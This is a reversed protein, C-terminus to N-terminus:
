AILNHQSDLVQKAASIVAELQSHSLGNAAKLIVTALQEPALKQIAIALETIVAEPIGQTLAAWNTVVAPALPQAYAPADSNREISPLLQKDKSAPEPVLDQPSLATEALDFEHEAQFIEWSASKYPAAPKLKSRDSDAEKLVLKDSSAPSPQGNIFSGAVSVAEVPELALIDPTTLNDDTESSISESSDFNEPVGLMQETKVETEPQNPALGATSQREVTEAPADVNTSPARRTGSEKHRSVIAKAENHTIAEGLAARELAESRADRPTSPAALLYLTKAAIGLQAVTACSGFTEFIKIYNYATRRSWEFEAKLWSDFVGYELRDRVDALKQGIEWATKAADRLKEKIESTRQQVVIKVEPDLANYDFCLAEPSFPQEQLASISM